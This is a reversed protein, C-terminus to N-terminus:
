NGEESNAYAKMVATGEFEGGYGELPGGEAGMYEIRYRIEFMSDVVYTQGDQTTATTHGPSHFGNETGGTIRLYSFDSDSGDELQGEIRMMETEFSIPSDDMSWPGAHAECKAPISVTGEYGELPGSGTLQIDITSDFTDITGAFVGGPEIRINFFHKHDPHWRLAQINGAGHQLTGPGNYTCNSPTIQIIGGVNSVTCPGSGSPAAAAFAPAGVLALISAVSVVLIFRDLNKM